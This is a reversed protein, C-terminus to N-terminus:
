ALAHDLDGASAVEVRAAVGLQWNVVEGAYTGMVVLRRVVDNATAYASPRAAPMSSWMPVETTRRARLVMEPNVKGVDVLIVGHSEVLRLREPDGDLAYM